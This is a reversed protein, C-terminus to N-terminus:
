EVCDEDDIASMCSGVAAHAARRGETAELVDSRIERGLCVSHALRVVEHIQQEVDHHISVTRQHRRRGQQARTDKLDPLALELELLEFELQEFELQELEVGEYQEDKVCRM